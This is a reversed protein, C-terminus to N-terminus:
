EFMQVMWAIPSHSPRGNMAISNRSPLVKFCMIWPLASSVSSRSSKVMWIASPRSAAWESPITWRSMLGAFMKTVLRPCALTSSKPSALTICGLNSGALAAVAAVTLSSCKVLGPAATPVTAYMDGSCASPLSNSERVSKNENPTTRYSIAVPARGNAPSVAAAIKLAMRLLTGGGGTRM